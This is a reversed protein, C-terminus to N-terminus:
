FPCPPDDTATMEPVGMLGAARPPPDHHVVCTKACSSGPPDGDGDGDGLFVSPDLPEPRVAYSRGSPTTWVLRGHQNVLQWGGEDKMRHHRRCLPALNCACTAGGERYKTVHDLDCREAPRHCGVMRCTQDRTVVHHALQQPVRYTTSSLHLLQGSVADTLAMRLRVDGALMDRAASACIAGYGDLMAPDDALGLLTPLTMTLRLDVRRGHSRPLTPDALRQEAWAVCANARAEDISQGPLQLRRADADCARFLLEGEAATVYASFSAMGDSLPRLCVAREKRALEHRAAAADPDAQAIARRTLRSLAPRTLGSAAPLVTDLVVDAVSPHLSEVERALDDAQTPLLDGCELAAGIRALRGKRARAQEVRDVATVPALRLALAAEERAWDHADGPSRGAVDVIAADTRAAVWSAIRAWVTLLESAVWTPWGAARRDGDPVKLLADALTVARPSPPEKLLVDVIQAAPVWALVEDVPASRVFATM